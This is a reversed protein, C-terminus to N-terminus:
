AFAPANELSSRGFVVSYFMVAVTATSVLIAALPYEPCNRLFVFVAGHAL